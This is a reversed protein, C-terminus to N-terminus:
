GRPSPRSPRRSSSSGVRARFGLYGKQPTVTVLSPRKEPGEGARVGPERMPHTERLLRSRHESRTAIVRNARDLLVPEVSPDVEDLIELISPWGLRGLMVATVRDYPEPGERVPAAFIMTPRVAGAPHVLESTFVVGRWAAEFAAREVPDTLTTGTRSRDTAALVRGGPGAVALDDWPGTLLARADLRRAEAEAARADGSGAGPNSPLSVAAIIQIDQMADHLKRDLASLVGAARAMQDQELLSLIPGREEAWVFLAVAPLGAAALVGALLAFRAALKM